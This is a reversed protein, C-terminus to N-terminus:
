ARQRTSRCDRWPQSPAASWTCADPSAGPQTRICSHWGGRGAPARSALCGVAGGAGFLSRPDFEPVVGSIAPVIGAPLLDPADLTRPIREALMAGSRAENLESLEHVVDQREGTTAIM